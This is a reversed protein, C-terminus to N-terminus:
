NALHCRTGGGEKVEDVWSTKITPASGQRNLRGPIVEVLKSDVREKNKVTLALYILAWRYDIGELKLDSETM